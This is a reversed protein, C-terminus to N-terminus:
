FAFFLVGLCTALGLVVSIGGLTYIMIDVARDNMPAVPDSCKMVSVEDKTGWM